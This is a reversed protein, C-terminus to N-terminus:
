KSPTGYKVPSLTSNNNKNNNNKFSILVSTEVKKKKKKKKQVYMHNVFDLSYVRISSCLLLKIYKKLYFM